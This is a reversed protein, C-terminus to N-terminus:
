GLGVGVANKMRKYRYRAEKLRRRTDVGPIDRRSPDIIWTYVYRARQRANRSADIIFRRGM